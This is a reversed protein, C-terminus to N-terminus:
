THHGFATYALRQHSYYFSSDNLGHISQRVNRTISTEVNSQLTSVDHRLTTPSSSGDSFVLTKFDDVVVRFSFPRVSPYKRRVHLLAPTDWRLYASYQYEDVTFNRVPNTPKASITEACLQPTRIFCHRFFSIPQAQTTNNNDDSYLESPWPQTLPLQEWSSNWPDEKRLTLYTRTGTVTQTYYFQASAARRDPRRQSHITTAFHLPSYVHLTLYYKM